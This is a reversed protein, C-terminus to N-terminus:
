SIWTFLSGKIGIALHYVDHAQSLCIVIDRNRGGLFVIFGATTLTGGFWHFSPLGISLQQKKYDIYILIEEPMFINWTKSESFAALLFKWWRQSLLLQTHEESSPSYSVALSPVVAGVGGGWGLDQDPLKSHQDFLSLWATWFTHAYIECVAFHTFPLPLSLSGTVSHFVWLFLLCLTPFVTMPIPWLM